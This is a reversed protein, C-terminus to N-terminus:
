ASASMRPRTTSPTIPAPTARSRRRRPAVLGHHDRDRRAGQRVPDRLARGRRRRGRDAADHGEHHRRHRDCALRHAGSHRPLRGGRLQDRRAAERGPERAARHIRGRHRVPAEVARELDVGARRRAVDRRGRRGRRDRGRRRQAPHRASVRDQADHRRPEERGVSQRRLDEAQHASRGPRAAAHRGRRRAAGREATGNKEYWAARMTDSRRESTSVPAYTAPSRRACAVPAACTRMARRLLPRRTPARRRARACRTSSWRRASRGSRAARPPQRRDRRRLRARDLRLGRRQHDAASHAQDTHSGHGAVQTLIKHEKFLPITILQCFLGKSATELMSWSAKLKLSSPAGFEVGIM